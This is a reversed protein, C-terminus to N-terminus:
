PARLRYFRAPYNTWEPDRFASTGDASLTNTAIPTWIPNSLDTSAEVVVPVNTAWSITFGFQNAQAESSGNLILPYPLTWLATQLGTNVSFEDWGTTGPLYYATAVDRIFVTSDANPASGEFYVNTLTDGEQFAFEEINTVSAPITVSTLGTYLFANTGISTVPLGDIENPISASGGYGIYSAINVTGNSITYGFPAPRDWLVTSLGTNTSFENWGTTGPLYYVTPPLGSYVSEADFFVTSNATPANGPFCVATLVDCGQFAYDEISTVSSPITVSGLSTDSFAYEGITLVGSGIIVSGLDRCNQFAGSGISTVSNPITVNALPCAYYLINDPTNIYYFGSFAYAGISIVNDGIAVNTLASCDYFSYDGVNTVSDSITISALNTCGLFAYDEISTISNAITYATAENGAPFQILTTQNQNFLVGDASAYAPNNPEVAIATLNGCAAFAGEGINTVSNPITVSRLPCGASVFASTGLDYSVGSFAFDGISTVGNGITVNTLFSGNYFAYAGISSVSDPITVSSL